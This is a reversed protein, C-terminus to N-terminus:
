DGYYDRCASVTERIKELVDSCEDIATDIREEFHAEDVKERVDGIIRSLHKMQEERSNIVEELLINIEKEKEVHYVINSYNSLQKNALKLKGKKEELSILLEILETISTITVIYGSNGCPEGLVGKTYTFYNKKGHISAIIYEERLPGSTVVAEGAFFSKIDQVDAKQRKGFCASERAAKNKYLYNGSSDLVFIYSESMDGIKDFALMALGLESNLRLELGVVVTICFLLLIEAYDVYESSKLVFLLYVCFPLLILIMYFFVNTNSRILKVAKKNGWVAAIMAIILLAKYITGYQIDHFSYASVFVGAISVSLISVAAIISLLKTRNGLSSKNIFALNSLVILIIAAEVNRLIEAASIGPVVSEIIRVISFLGILGFISNSYITNIKKNRKYYYYVLSIVAGITLGTALVVDFFQYYTYYRGDGM